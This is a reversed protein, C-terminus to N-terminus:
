LTSKISTPKWKGSLLEDAQYLMCTEEYNTTNHEERTIDGHVVYSYELPHYRKDEVKWLDGYTENCILRTATTRPNLRLNVFLKDQSCIYVLSDTVHTGLIKINLNTLVDYGHACSEIFVDRVYSHKEKWKDTLLVADPVEVTELHIDNETPSSFIVAADWNIWTVSFYMGVLFLLMVLCIKCRSKIVSENSMSMKGRMYKSCRNRNKMTTIYIIGIYLHEILHYPNM